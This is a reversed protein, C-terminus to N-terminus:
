HLKADSVLDASAWVDASKSQMRILLFFIRQQDTHNDMFQKLRNVFMALCYLVTYHFVHMNECLRSLCITEWTEGSMSHIIYTWMCIHFYNPEGAWPRELWQGRWFSSPVFNSHAQALTHNSLPLPRLHLVGGRRVWDCWDELLGNEWGTYLTPYHQNSSM